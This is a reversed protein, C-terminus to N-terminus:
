VRIAAAHGVRMTHCLREPHATRAANIADSLTSGLYYGGSEPEIALFENEHAAELQSKLSREYISEAKRALEDLNTHNSM